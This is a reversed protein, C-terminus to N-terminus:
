IEGLCWLTASYNILTFILTGFNGINQPYGLYFDSVGLAYLVVPINGGYTPTYGFQCNFNPINEGGGSWVVQINKPVILTIRNDDNSISFTDSLIVIKNNYTSLDIIGNTPITSIVVEEQFLSAPAPLQSLPVKGDVLDAKSSVDVGEPLDFKTGDITISKLTPM